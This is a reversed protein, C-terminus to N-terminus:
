LLKFVSNLQGSAWYINVCVDTFTHWKHILHFFVWSLHPPFSFFWAGLMIVPSKLIRKEPKLGLKCDPSWVSHLSRWITVTENRKGSNKPPNKRGEPHPASSTSVMRNFCPLSFKTLSHVRVTVWVENTVRIPQPFTVNVFQSHFCMWKM